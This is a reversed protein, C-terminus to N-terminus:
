VVLLEENDFYDSRVVPAGDTVEILDEMHYGVKGVWRVRTEVTTMMGAEYPIHDHPSILPHEHIQLGIGHGNHAYPFPIKHKEHLRTAADFLQAGTNGPRVMDIIEHHIDRLRIWWSLDEDTPEGMKATRGVNSYYRSYFGGTDAKLIDGKKVTNGSPDMHPFGTNPGANIHCFAVSEAGSRLIGDCLRFAMDRETDGVKTAAYTEMLAKETGRFAATMIERERPSKIMRAHAFLEDCPELRLGPLRGMLAQHYQVGLYEAEIGVRGKALGFEDLVDALVDVPSTVFEKYTRIDDIWGEQRVYGEEVQCLIYAPARGKAWVILALRDRIDIQTSIFVDGIYLVNVPSVAVVADFDSAEIFDRMRTLNGTAEQMTKM